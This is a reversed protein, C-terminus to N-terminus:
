YYCASHHLVVRHAAQRYITIACSCNGAFDTFRAVLVITNLIPVFPCFRTVVITKTSMAGEVRYLKIAEVTTDDEEQGACINVRAGCLSVLRFCLL